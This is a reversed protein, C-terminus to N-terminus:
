KIGEKYSRFVNFAANVGDVVAQSTITAGTVAVIEEESRAAIKTLRLDTSTNKQAFRAM